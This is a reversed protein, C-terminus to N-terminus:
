FFYRQPTTPTPQKGTLNKKIAFMTTQCNSLPQQYNTFIPQEGPAAFPKSAEQVDVLGVLKGCLKGNKTFMKAVQEEL